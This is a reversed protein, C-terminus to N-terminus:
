IYNKNKLYPNWCDLESNRITYYGKPMNIVSEITKDIRILEKLSIIRAEDTKHVDGCLAQWIGDEDHSLCFVSKNQELIHICTIVVENDAM